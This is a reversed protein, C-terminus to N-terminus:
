LKRPRLDRVEEVFLGTAVAIQEDNLVGGAILKLAIEVAQTKAYERAYDEILQCMALVESEENKLEDVRESLNKFKENMGNSNKFFEMLEAVDEDEADASVNTSGNVYIFKEGDNVPTVDSFDLIARGVHYLRRGKNFVDFKSIYVVYVDKVNEFNEGPESVNATICSANFRTRKLHNDDDAKQIEVDIYSGDKMRCLADLRVSRGYLNKVSSQPILEVIELEPEHFIIRLIDEVADKDKAVMEFFTDDFVNFKKVLAKKEELTQLAM